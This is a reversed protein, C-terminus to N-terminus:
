QWEALLLAEKDAALGARWQHDAPRSMAWDLTDRATEVLTRFRLGSEIAKAVSVQMLGWEEPDPVWLPLETWPTVGRQLLFDAGVWQLEAEGGVAERVMELLGEMTYPDAPGTANFTGVARRVIVDVLWRALDRVDIVQV